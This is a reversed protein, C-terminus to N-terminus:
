DDCEMDKATILKCAEEPTFEDWSAKFLRWFAKLYDWESDETLLYEYYGQKSQAYEKEATAKMLAIAEKGTCILKTQDEKKAYPDIYILRRRKDLNTVNKLM